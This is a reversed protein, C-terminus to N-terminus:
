RSRNHFSTESHPTCSTACLTHLRQVDGFLRTTQHGDLAYRFIIVYHDNSTSAKGDSHCHRVYAKEASSRLADAQNVKPLAVAYSCHGHHSVFTFFLAYLGFTFISRM